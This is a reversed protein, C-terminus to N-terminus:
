DGRRAPGVDVQAADIAADFERLAELRLDSLARIMSRLGEFEAVLRERQDDLFASLELWRETSSPLIEPLQRHILDNREKVLLKLAKKRARSFEPDAEIRYRFSFWAEQLDDPGNRDAPDAQYTHRIFSEVLHGMPQRAVKKSKQQVVASLESVYGAVDGHIVLHKLAAEILQFFYVNRGIKRFADNRAHDSEPEPADQM